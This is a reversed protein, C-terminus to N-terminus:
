AHRRKNIFRVAPKQLSIYVHEIIIRVVKTL